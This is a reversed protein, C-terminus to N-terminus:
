LPGPVPSPSPDGAALALGAACAVGAAGTGGLATGGDGLGFATGVVGGAGSLAPSNVDNNVGGAAGAGFSM